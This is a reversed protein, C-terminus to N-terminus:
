ASVIRAMEGRDPKEDPQLEDGSINKIIELGITVEVDRGMMPVSIVARRKHRDIKIIEGKWGKFSGSTISVMDDVRFGISNRVIHEDGGIRTLYEEEEPRIPTVKGDVLLLKM